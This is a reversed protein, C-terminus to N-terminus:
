KIPFAVIPFGSCMSVRCHHIVVLLDRNRRLKILRLLKENRKCTADARPPSPPACHPPPSPRKGQGSPHSAQPRARHWAQQRDNGSWGPGWCSPGEKKRPSGGGEGEGVGTCGRTEKGAGLRACDKKLRFSVAQSARGRTTAGKNQCSRQDKKPWIFLM